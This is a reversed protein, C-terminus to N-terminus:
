RLHSAMVGLARLSAEMVIGYVVHSGAEWGVAAPPMRWPPPQVGMAPVTSAHTSAYLALGAPVGLALGVRPARARLLAYGVAFSLGLGWHVGAAARDRTDDAPKKGTVKRVVRDVIVTPPMRDPHDAPDAGPVLKDDETPPWIKEARPQLVSEATGKATTAAYGALLGTAAVALLAPKRNM